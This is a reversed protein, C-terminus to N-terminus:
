CDSLTSSKKSTKKHDETVFHISFVGNHIIHQGCRSKYNNQTALPSPQHPDVASKSTSPFVSFSILPSFFSINTM